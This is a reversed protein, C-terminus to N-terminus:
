KKLNNFEEITNIGRSALNNKISIKNILLNKEYSIKVIDTLYYEKTIENRKIKFINKYNTQNIGMM